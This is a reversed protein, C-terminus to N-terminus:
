TDVESEVKFCVFDLNTLGWHQNALHESINRSSRWKCPTGNEDASAVGCFGIFSSASGVWYMSPGNRPYRFYMRYDGTFVPCCWLRHGDITWRFPEKPDSPRQPPEPLTLDPHLRYTDKNWCSKKSPKMHFWCSGTWSQCYGFQRSTNLIEQQRGALLGFPRENQQLEALEEATVNLDRLFQNNM